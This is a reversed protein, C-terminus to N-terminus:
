VEGLEAERPVVFAGPPPPVVWGERARPLGSYLQGGPAAHGVFGLSAHGASWLARAGVGDGQMALQAQARIEASASGVALANVTWAAVGAGDIFLGHDGTASAAFVLTLTADINAAPAASAATNITWQATAADGARSGMRAQTIFSTQAWARANLGRAGVAAGVFSLSAPADIWAVATMDGAGMFGFSGAASFQMLAAGAAGGTFSWNAIGEPETVPSTQGDFTLTAVGEVAIAYGGSGGGSWSLNGTARAEMLVTGDAAGAFVQSLAAVTNHVASVHPSDAAGLTGSASADAWLGMVATAAFSLGTAGEIDVYRTGDRALELRALECSGLEAFLGAAM